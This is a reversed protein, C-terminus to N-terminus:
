AAADRGESFVKCVYEFYNRCGEFEQNFAQDLSRAVAIQGPVNLNFTHAEHSFKTQRILDAPGIAWGIKWGTANLMKGSSFINITKEWNAESFNAFSVYKRNDFPLFYYVDDALVTVQPHKELIASLKAIEDYTFIKGSPNHPNTIMLLKTRENLRSELAAFDFSWKGDPSCHMPATVPKGGAFEVHNIYQSYFPEFMLVEDGPNVLNNVAAYIAGIAGNTVLVESNPCIERGNFLTSFNKAVSTRLEPHGDMSTYHNNMGTDIVEHMNKILFPAPPLGPLGHSFNITKYKLALQNFELWVPMTDRTKSKPLTKLAQKM